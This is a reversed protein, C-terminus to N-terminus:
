HKAYSRHFSRCRCLLCHGLQVNPDYQAVITMDHKNQGHGCVCPNVTFAQRVQEVVVYSFACIVVAVAPLWQAM